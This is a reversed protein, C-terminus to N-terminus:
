RAGRRVARPFRTTPPQRQPTRTKRTGFLIPMARLTDAPPTTLM